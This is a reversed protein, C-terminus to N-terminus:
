LTGFNDFQLLFLFRFNLSSSFSRQIYNSFKESGILRPLAVLKDNTKTPEISVRFGARIRVSVTYTYIIVYKTTKIKNGRGGTTLIWLCRFSHFRVFLIRSLFLFMKPVFYSVLRESPALINKVWIIGSHRSFIRANRATRDLFDLM